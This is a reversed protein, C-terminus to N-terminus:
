RVYVGWKNMLDQQAEVFNKGSARVIVKSFLNGKETVTIQVQGTCIDLYILDYHDKVYLNYFEKFSM